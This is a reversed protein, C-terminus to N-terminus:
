VRLACQPPSAYALFCVDIGRLPISPVDIGRLPISPVDIGRL